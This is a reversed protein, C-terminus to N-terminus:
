QDLTVLSRFEEAAVNPSAEIGHRTALIGIVICGGDM